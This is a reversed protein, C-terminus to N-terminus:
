HQSTLDSWLDDSSVSTSVCTLSTVFESQEVQSRIVWPAHEHWIQVPERNVHRLILPILSQILWTTKSKKRKKKSRGKLKDWTSWFIPFVTSIICRNIWQLHSTPHSFLTTIGTLWLRKGVYSEPQLKMSYILSWVVGGRTQGNERESLWDNSFSVRGCLVDQSHRLVSPTEKIAKKRRSAAHGSRSLLSEGTCVFIQLEVWM